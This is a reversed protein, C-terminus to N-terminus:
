IKSPNLSNTSQYQLSQIYSNDKSNYRNLKSNYKKSMTGVCDVFLSYILRWKVSEAIKVLNDRLLAFIYAIMGAIAIIPLPQPERHKLLLSTSAHIYTNTTNGEM